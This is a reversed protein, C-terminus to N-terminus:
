LQGSVLHDNEVPRPSMMLTQNIQQLQNVSVWSLFNTDMRGFLIKLTKTDKYCRFINEFGFIHIRICKAMFDLKLNGAKAVGM